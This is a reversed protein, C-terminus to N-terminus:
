RAGAQLFALALSQVGEGALIPGTAVDCATLAVLDADLQLELIERLTLPEPRGAGPAGSLLISTAFPDSGNVTM